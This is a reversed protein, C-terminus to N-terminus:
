KIQINQREVIRAGEIKEGSKLAKMLETKSFEVKVPKAFNLPIKKKDLIEVAESQRWSIAFEPEKMKQGDLERELTAKCWVVTREAAKRRAEFRKEQAKCSDADAQSNIALLAINRLKEHREMQLGELAYADLIEGTEEDICAMIKQDIEYLKM